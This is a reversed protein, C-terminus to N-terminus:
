KLVLRKWLGHSKPHTKNWGIWHWKCFIHAYNGLTFQDMLVIGLRGCKECKLGSDHEHQRISEADKKARIRAKVAKMCARCVRTITGNALHSYLTNAVSFEHGHKCHTKKANLAGPGIGRLVNEGSTVLELHFPNVCWRNRCLHDTELGEPIPYRFTEFAFRHAQLTVDGSFWFRGYGGADKGSLWQWCGNELRNVKKAFRSFLNGAPRGTRM